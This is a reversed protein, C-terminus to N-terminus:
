IAPHARLCIAMIRALALHSVFTGTQCSQHVHPTTPQVVAQASVAAALMCTHVLRFALLPCRLLAYM